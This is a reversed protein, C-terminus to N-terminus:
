QPSASLGMVAEKIESWRSKRKYIVLITACLVVSISVVVISGGVDFEGVEPSIMGQEKM